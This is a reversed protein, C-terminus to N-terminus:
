SCRGDVGDILGAQGMKVQFFRRKRGPEHFKEGRKRGSKQDATGLGLGERSVKAPGTEVPHDEKRGKRAFPLFQVNGVSEQL